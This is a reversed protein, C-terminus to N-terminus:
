ELEDGFDKELGDVRFPYLDVKIELRVKEGVLHKYVVVQLTDEFGVHFYLNNVNFRTVLDPQFEYGKGIYFRTIAEQLKEEDPMEESSFPGLSFQEVVTTNYQKGIQDFRDASRRLRERDKEGLNQEDALQDFSDRLTLKAGTELGLEQTLFLRISPIKSKESEGFRSM